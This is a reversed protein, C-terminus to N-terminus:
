KKAEERIRVAELAVANCVAHSRRIVIRQAHKRSQAAGTATACVVSLAMTTACGATLVHLARLVPPMTNIPVNVTMGSAALPVTVPVHVSLPACPATRACPLQDAAFDGRPHFPAHREMTAPLARSYEPVHVADVESRAVVASGCSKTFRPMSDITFPPHRLPPLLPPHDIRIPPQRRRACAHSFAFVTGSARVDRGLHTRLASAQATHLSHTATDGSGSTAEACV